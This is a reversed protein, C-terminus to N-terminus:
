VCVCVRGCGQYYMSSGFGTLRLVTVLAVSRDLCLCVVNERQSEVGFVCANVRASRAWVSPCVIRCVFVNQFCVLCVISIVFCVFLLCVDGWVQLYYLRVVCVFVTAVVAEGSVATRAASRPTSAPPTSTWTM